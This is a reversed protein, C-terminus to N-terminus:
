LSLESAAGWPRWVAWRRRRNSRAAHRSEERSFSLCPIRCVLAISGAQICWIAAQQGICYHKHYTCQWGLCQRHTKQKPKAASPTNRRPMRLAVEITQFDGTQLQKLVHYQLSPTPTRYLEDPGSRGTLKSLARAKGIFGLVRIM